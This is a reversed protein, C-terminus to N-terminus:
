EPLCPCLRQTHPHSGSCGPNENTVLCRGYQGDDRNSVYNPLDVGRSEHCSTCPFHDQLVQCDNVTHFLHDACRWGKAWYPTKAGGQYSQCVEHCSVGTQDAAVTVRHQEWKQNDSDQFNQQNEVDKDDNPEDAEWVNRRRGEGVGQRPPQQDRWPQQQLGPPLANNGNDFAKNSKDDSVCPCLRRTQRHSAECTPHMETELCMPDRGIALSAAEVNPLDEGWGQTCRNKCYPWDHALIACDNIFAFQSADCKYSVRNSGYSFCVDTCSTGFGKALVAKLTAVKRIRHTSDVFPSLHRNVLFIDASNYQLWLTHRYIARPTVRIALQYAVSEFTEDTYSVVYIHEPQYNAASLPPMDNSHFLRRKAKTSSDLLKNRFSAYYKPSLLYGLDGYPKYRYPKIDGVAVIPKIYIHFFEDSATTGTSGINRNRSVWPVICDRRQSTTSVRMWHDWNDAPFKDSLESVWLERKLMWGLGPFYSTRFFNEEPLTFTRFGNDNWSSICWLTPDVELLPALSEFMIFFDKTIALDDELIVVHSHGKEIFLKDLVWKYHAAVYATGPTSGEVKISLDAHPHQLYEFDKSYRRAMAATSADAGDQSVYKKIESSLDAALVAALTKDLYDARNYALVVLAADKLFRLTSPPRTVVLADSLEKNHALLAEIDRSEKAFYDGVVPVFEDDDSDSTRDSLQPDHSDGRIDRRKPANEEEKLIVKPPETTSLKIRQTTPAAFHPQKTRITTEQAGKSVEAVKSTVVPKSSPDYRDDARLLLAEDPLAVEPVEDLLTRIKAINGLVRLGISQRRTDIVDLKQTFISKKAYMGGLAEEASAEADDSDHTKHALHLFVFLQVTTIVFLIIAVVHLTKCRM